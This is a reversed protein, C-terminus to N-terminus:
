HPLHSCTYRFEFSVNREVEENTLHNFAKQIATRFMDFTFRDSKDAVINVSGLFQESFFREPFKPKVPLKM